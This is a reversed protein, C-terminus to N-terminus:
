LATPLKRKGIGTKRYFGLLAGAKTALHVHGTQGRTIDGEQPHHISPADRTGGAKLLGEGVM